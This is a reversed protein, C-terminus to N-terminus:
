FSDRDSYHGLEHLSKCRVVEAGSGGSEAIRFEARSKSASSLRFHMQRTSRGQM